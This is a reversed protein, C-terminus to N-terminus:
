TDSSDALKIEKKAFYQFNNEPKMCPMMENKLYNKMYVEKDACTIGGLM